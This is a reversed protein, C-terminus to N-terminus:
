SEILHLALLLQILGRPAHLNCSVRRSKRLSRTGGYDLRWREDERAVDGLNIGTIWVYYVKCPWPAPILVSLAFLRPIGSVRDEESNIPLIMINRYM